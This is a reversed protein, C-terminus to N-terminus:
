PDSIAVVIADRLNLRAGGIFLHQPHPPIRNTKCERAVLSQASADRSQAGRVRHTHLQAEFRRAFTLTPKAASKPTL